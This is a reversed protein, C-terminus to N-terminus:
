WGYGDYYGRSGSGTLVKGCVTNRLCCRAQSVPEGVGFGRESERERVRVREKRVYEWCLRAKSGRGVGRRERERLCGCLFCCERFADRVFCM